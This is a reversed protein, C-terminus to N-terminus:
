FFIFFFFFLVLFNPFFHLSDQVSVIKNKNKQSSSFLFRIANAEGRKEQVILFYCPPPACRVDFHLSLKGCSFLVFVCLLFFM